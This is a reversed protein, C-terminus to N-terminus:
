MNYYALNIRNINQEKPDIAQLVPGVAFLSLMVYIEGNVWSYLKLNRYKHQTNTYVVHETCTHIYEFVVLMDEM